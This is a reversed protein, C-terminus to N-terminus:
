MGSRDGIPAIRAPRPRGASRPRRVVVPRERHHQSGRRARVDPAAASGRPSIPGTTATAIRAPRPRGASRSMHPCTWLNCHRQSGRRARVGPAARGPGGRASAAYSNRDEGPASARRQWPRLPWAAGSATLTAIRAPRPRGASCTYALRGSGGDVNRDEGPASARRQRSTTLPLNGNSTNRDEGPASARRQATITGAHAAEIDINRDEGPASARRQAREVIQQQLHPAPQSGRRARVGPAARNPPAPHPRASPQSGRRARVGPAARAHRGERVVQRNRDEGPASARRQVRPPTRRGRRVWTAIRAPRPRGASGPVFLTRRGAVRTAIRAPRPRGASGVGPRHAALGPLPQSGRRARVGPAAM